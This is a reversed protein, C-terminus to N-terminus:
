ELDLEIDERHNVGLRSTRKLLEVIPGLGPIVAEPELDIWPVLVFARESARPHPLTLGDSDFHPGGVVIPDVDLTRPANSERPELGRGYAAVIALARDLLAPSSLATDMLVVATLFNKSGEAADAPTPKDVPSVGTVWVEPTNPEDFLDGQRGILVQVAWDVDPAAKRCANAFGM